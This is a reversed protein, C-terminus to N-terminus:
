IKINKFVSMFAYKFIIEHRINELFRMYRVANVELSEYANSIDRTGRLEFKDYRTTFKTTQMCSIFVPL